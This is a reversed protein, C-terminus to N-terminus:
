LVGGANHDGDSAVVPPGFAIVRAATSLAESLWREQPNTLEGVFVKPTPQKSSCTAVVTCFATLLVVQRFSNRGYEPAASLGTFWREDDAIWDPSGSVAVFDDRQELHTVVGFQAAEWTVRELLEESRAPQEDLFMQPHTRIFDLGPGVLQLDEPGYRKEDM